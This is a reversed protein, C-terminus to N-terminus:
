QGPEKRSLRLVEEAEADTMPEAEFDRVKPQPTEGCLVDKGNAGCQPCGAAAIGQMVKVVRDVDMPLRMPADWQHNCKACHVTLAEQTWKQLPM